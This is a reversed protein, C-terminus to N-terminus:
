YVHTVHPPFLCFEGIWFPTCGNNNPVTITLAAGSSNLWQVTKLHGGVCGVHMPTNGTANARTVDAGNQQLFTLMKENELHGQECVAWLPSCGDIDSLRLMNPFMTALRVVEQYDNAQCAKYLPSRGANDSSPQSM